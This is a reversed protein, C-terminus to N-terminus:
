TPTFAGPLGVLLISKNKAFEALNYKKPTFGQHLEVSPLKDGVSAFSRTTSSRFFLSASSSPSRRAVVTFALCRNALFLSM